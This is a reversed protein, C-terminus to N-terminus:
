DWECIFYYKDTELSDTADNWGWQDYYFNTLVLSNERTMGNPEGTLWFTYGFTEGTIWTWNGESNGDTGGLWYIQKNNQPIISLIFDQEDSDTITCLHGGVSECYATAEILSMNERYAYYYHGNTELLKRDAGAFANNVTVWADRLEGGYMNNENSVAGDDGYIKMQLMHVGDSHKTTDWSMSFGPLPTINSYDRGTAKTAALVDAREARQAVGLLTGDVYIEVRNKEGYVAWGKIDVIGSLDNPCDNFWGDFPLGSHTLEANNTINASELTQQPMPTASVAAVVEVLRKDSGDIRITYLSDHSYHQRDIVPITFFIVNDVVNLNEFFSWYRDKWESSSIKQRNGGDISISYLSINDDGKGYYITGGVVNIYYAWDDTLKQKDGGDTRISYLKFRDSSNSYFVRDGVVNIWRAKDESLRRLGSGDIKVSHIRGGNIDDTYYISDGAVNVFLSEGDNIKKRNSGDTKITYLKSGDGRNSYYLSDGAVNIYESYDDNIKKRESGDIKIAYIKGGEKMNGYYIWDNVINIYNSSDDNLKKLDTGDPKMSYIKRSDNINCFYFRQGYTVAIGNNTINGGTNGTKTVTALYPASTPEPTPNPMPETALESTSEQEPEPTSPLTAELTVTPEPVHTPTTEAVLRATPTPAPTSAALAATPRAIPTPAPTAVPEPVEAVTQSQAQTQKQAVEYPRLAELRVLLEANKPVQGLGQELVAVAEDERGLVAYVEALGVYARANKPEVEILRDFYVIAMEYNMDLLRKEGLDLLEAASMGSIPKSCAALPSAALVLALALLAFRHKVTGGIHQRVGGAQEPQQREGSNAMCLSDVM